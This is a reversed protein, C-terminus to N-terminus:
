EGKAQARALLGRLRELTEQVKTYAQIPLPLDDVFDLLKKACAELELRKSEALLGELRYRETAERILTATLNAIAENEPKSEAPQSGRLWDAFSQLTEDFVQKATHDASIQGVKYMRWCHDLVNQAIAGKAGNDGIHAAYLTLTRDPYRGNRCCYEFDRYVVGPYEDWEYAYIPEQEMAGGNLEAIRKEAEAVAKETGHEAEYHGGDRHIRALLNSLHPTHRAAQWELAAKWGEWAGNAPPSVYGGGKVAGRRYRRKEFAWAEFADRAEREESM